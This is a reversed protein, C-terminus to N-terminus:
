LKGQSFISIMDHIQDGKGSKQVFDSEKSCRWLACLLVLIVSLALFIIAVRDQDEQATIRFFFMEVNNITTKM